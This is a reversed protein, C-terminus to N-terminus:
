SRWSSPSSSPRAWPWPSPRWSPWAPWSSSASSSSAPSSSAPCSSTFTSVVVNGLSRGHEPAASRGRGTRRLASLLHKEVGGVVQLIPRRAPRRVPPGNKSKRTQRQSHLGPGLLHHPERCRSHSAEGQVCGRGGAWVLLSRIACPDPAAQACWRWHPPANKKNTHSLSLAGDRARECRACGLGSPPYPHLRGVACRERETTGAQRGKHTTHTNESRGWDHWARRGGGGGRSVAAGAGHSGARAAWERDMQIALGLRAGAAALEAADGRSRRPPRRPPSFPQLM